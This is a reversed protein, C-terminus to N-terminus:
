RILFHNLCIRKPDRASFVRGVNNVPVDFLSRSVIRSIMLVPRRSLDPHRTNGMSEM